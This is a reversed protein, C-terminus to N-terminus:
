LLIFTDTSIYTTSFAVLVIAIKNQKIIVEGVFQQPGLRRLNSHHSEEFIHIINTAQIRDIFYWFYLVYYSHWNNFIM